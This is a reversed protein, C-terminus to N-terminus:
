SLKKLIKKHLNKLFLYEKSPETELFHWPECNFHSELTETFEETENRDLDFCFCNKHFGEIISLAEHENSTSEIQKIQERLEKQASMFRYWPLDFKMEEKIYRRINKATNKPSFVHNENSLKGAFYDANTSKLFDELNSGMSGWFFSYSGEYLDSVIIKGSGFRENKLFVDTTGIKIQRM